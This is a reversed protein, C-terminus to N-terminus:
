FFLRPQSRDNTTATHLPHSTHPLAPVGYTLTEHGYGRLSTAYRTASPCSDPTLISRPTSARPKTSLTCQAYRLHVRHTRPSRSSHAHAQSGTCEVDRRSVPSVPSPCRAPIVTEDTSSSRASQQATPPRPPRESPLLSSPLLSSLPLRIPHPRFPVPAPQLLFCPRLSM